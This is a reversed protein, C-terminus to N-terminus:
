DDEAEIIRFSLRVLAERMKIWQSVHLLEFQDGTWFPRWVRVYEESNHWRWYINNRAEREVKEHAEQAAKRQERTAGSM